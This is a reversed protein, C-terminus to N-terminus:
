KCSSDAITVMTPESYPSSMGHNLLAVLLKSNLSLDSDSNIGTNKLM